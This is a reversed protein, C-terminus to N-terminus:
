PQVYLYYTTGTSTGNDNNDPVLMQYQKYSGDYATIGSNGTTYNGLFVMLAKDGTGTIGGFSLHHSWWLASGTSTYTAVSRAFRTTGGVVLPTVTQFTSLGSDADNGYGWATDINLGAASSISAWRPSSNTTAMILSNNSLSLTWSYFAQTASTPNLSLSVSSVNGFIGAWKGTSGSAAISVNYVSGGTVGGVSTGTGSSNYATNVTASTSPAVAIAGASSTLLGITVLGLLRVALKKM